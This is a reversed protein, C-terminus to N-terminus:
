EISAQGPVKTRLGGLVAADEVSLDRHRGYRSSTAQIFAHGAEPRVDITSFPTPSAKCHSKASPRLRGSTPFLVHHMSVPAPGGDMFWRVRARMSVSAGSDLVISTVSRQLVCLLCASCRLGIRSPPSPVTPQGPALIRVASSARSAGLEPGPATVLSAVPRLLSRFAIRHPAANPASRTIAATQTGADTVDAADVHSSCAHLRSADVSEATQLLASLHAHSFIQSPSTASKSSLSFM